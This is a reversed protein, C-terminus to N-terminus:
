IESKQLVHSWSKRSELAVTSLVRGLPDLYSDGKSAQGFEVAESHAMKRRGIAEAHIAIAMGCDNTRGQQALSQAFPQIPSRLGM